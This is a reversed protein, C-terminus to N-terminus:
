LKVRKISIEFTGQFVEEKLIKQIPEQKDQEGFYLYHMSVGLVDAVKQVQVPNKPSRNLCWERLTSQPVGTERSLKAISWNQDEMLSSLIEGIKIKM